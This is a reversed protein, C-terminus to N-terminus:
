FVVHMEVDGCRWRKIEPASGSRILSVKRHVSPCGRIRPLCVNLNLMPRRAAVANKVSAMDGGKELSVFDVVQPEIARFGRRQTQDRM